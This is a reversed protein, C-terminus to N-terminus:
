ELTTNVTRRQITQSGGATILTKMVAESKLPIGGESCYLTGTATTEGSATQGRFRTHVTYAIKNCTQGGVRAQGVVKCETDRTFTIHQGGRSVTDSWSFRWSENTEVSKEPFQPFILMIYLLDRSFLEFGLERTQNLASPEVAQVGRPVGRDDTLLEMSKGRLQEFAVVRSAGDPGTARMGVTDAVIKWEKGATSSGPVVSLSIGIGMEASPKASVEKGPPLAVNFFEMSTRYRYVKGKEFGYRLKIGGSQALTMTGAVLILVLLGRMLSTKM